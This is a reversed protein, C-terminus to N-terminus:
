PQLPIWWWGDQSRQQSLRSLTRIIGLELGMHTLSLYSHPPRSSFSNILNDVDNTVASQCCRRLLLDRVSSWSTTSDVVFCCVCKESRRGVSGLWGAFLSPRVGRSLRNIHPSGGGGRWGYSQLMYTHQLGHAPPPPSRSCYRSM